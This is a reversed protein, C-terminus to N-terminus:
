GSLGDLLDGVLAATHPWQPLDAGARTAAAALRGRYRADTLLRTLAAALADPDEPTVLVGASAPVTEPVAGVACSVIPLGYSLAEDFVIGYGEYRTALSFLTASRYLRDLESASVEGAFRVRHGLGLSAHLSMLEASHAADYVAGVIVASWDLHRLKALAALLIDHGKRPHQIGVSV